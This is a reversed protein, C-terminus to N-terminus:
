QPRTEVPLRLSGFVSRSFEGKLFAATMRDLTFVHAQVIQPMIRTLHERLEAISPAAAMQAGRRLQELISNHQAVHCHFGPFGKEEMLGEERSFHAALESDLERYLRPLDDDAAVSIAEFIRDIRQHDTDMLEIGLVPIPSTM